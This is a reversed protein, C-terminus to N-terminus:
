QILIDKVLVKGVDSDVMNTYKNPLHHVFCCPDVTLYKPFFPVFNRSFCGKPVNIHSIGLVAVETISSPWDKKMIRDQWDPFFRFLDFSISNIHEEMLIRDYLFMGQYTRGLNIFSHSDIFDIHPSESCSFRDGKISDTMTWEKLEQNWYVRLFSPYLGFPKLKERDNLWYKINIPTVEMDDEIAMFHSYTPDQFKQWMIKKHVWTLLWPSPIIDCGENYIEIKFRKNNSPASDYILDLDSKKTINTIVIVHVEDMLYEQMKLVQSLEPLKRIDAHPLCTLLKM